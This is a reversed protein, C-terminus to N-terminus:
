RSTRGLLRGLVPLDAIGEAEAMALGQGAREDLSGLVVYRPVWRPRYKANFKWLSEIQSRSAVGVSTARGWRAFWRTDEGSVFGRLVAFNLDLGGGTQTAVHRITEIVLFDMIGNPLDEDTNRHMVDLSWGDLDRAPVWQV